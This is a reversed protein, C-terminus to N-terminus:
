ANPATAAIECVMKSLSIGRSSAAKRLTDAAQATVSLSLAVNGVDESVPGFIAKYEEGTLHAEAWAQAEALTMPIIREGNSWRDSEIMEAYRSGPGGQGHLFYRGARTRYLSEECWHLKDDMCSSSTGLPTKGATDYVHNSAIKRM